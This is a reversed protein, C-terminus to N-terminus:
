ECGSSLEERTTEVLLDGNTFGYEEYLEVLRGDRRMEALIEDFRDRTGVDEKRFGIATGSLPAEEDIVLTLDTRDGVVPATTFEGAAFGQVRGADIAEIGTRVDPVAVLRDDVVGVSRAYAEQSSGSLVALKREGDDVFAQYGDIGDSQDSPVVVSERQVSVPETFLVAECREATINLASPLFDWQGANLGPIMADFTTSTARLEGVGMAELVARAVDPVYGTPSGDPELETYPPAQAIAATAVGAERWSGLLAADAGDDGGAEDGASASSTSAGAQGAVGSGDSGAGSCATAALLVLALAAVHIM